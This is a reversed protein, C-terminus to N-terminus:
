IGYRSRTAEFNQQIETATLVKNYMQTIGINGLWNVSSGGTTEAGLYLTSTTPPNYSTSHAIPLFEGNFIIQCNTGDFTMGIMKWDTTTWNIAADRYQTQAHVRIYDSTVWIGPNWVPGPGVISTRRNTGIPKNAGSGGSSLATSPKLWQIVTYPGTNSVPNNFSIYSNTGNFNTAEDNYDLDSVHWFKPEYLTPDALNNILPRFYKAPILEWSGSPTKWGVAIGDGGSQEEFRAQFKYWGKTLTISGDNRAANSGFGHGNYWYSVKVGNVFVDLADDGDCSFEYLGDEPAYLWGRYLIGYLQTTNTSTMYSPYGSTTGTTSGNNPFRWTTPGQAWNLNGSHFGTSRLSATTAFVSDLGAETTPHGGSWDVLWYTLGYGVPSIRSATDLHFVLGDNVINSGSVCAM